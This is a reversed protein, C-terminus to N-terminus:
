RVERANTPTKLSLTKGRLFSIRRDQSGTWRGRSARKTLALDVAAHHAKRERFWESIRGSFLLKLYRGTRRFYTPLIEYEEPSVVGAAVEERLEDRIARREVALWAVILVIYSLVILFLIGYALPGALTAALNFVAHLLIAGVLGLLPLAVKLFPNRVWPILGIGIGILATFAAHAFGGFIRRVVFTEPGYQAYYFVDEAISFGFGVASGYVIGDMVGSFEVAGRGRAVAYSIGFVILLALGKSCEEIIPAGVVVTLLDAARAGVVSTLTFAFIANFLLSLIVAVTFGWVFVPIVYRLPEREYLDIFRIFLLYLLTQVVGFFVLTASM